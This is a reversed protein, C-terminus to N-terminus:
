SKKYPGEYEESTVHTITPFGSTIIAIRNGSIVPKVGHWTIADTVLTLGLEPKILTYPDDPSLGGLAFEGGKEPVEVYTIATTVTPVWQVSEVHIHPFGQIWEGDNPTNEDARGVWWKVTELHGAPMLGKVWTNYPEPPPDQRNRSEEPSMPRNAWTLLESISGEYQAKAFM